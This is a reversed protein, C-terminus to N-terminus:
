EGIAIIADYFDDDEQENETQFAANILNEDMQIFGADTNNRFYQRKEPTDYGNRIFIQGESTQWFPDEGPTPVNNNQLSQTYERDRKDLRNIIKSNLKKDRASHRLNLLMEYAIEDRDIEKDELAKILFYRLEELSLQSVINEVQENDWDLLARKLQKIRSTDETRKKKDVNEQGKEATQNPTAIKQEQAATTNSGSRVSIM